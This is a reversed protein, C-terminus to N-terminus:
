AALLYLIAKSAAIRWSKNRCADELMGSSHGSGAPAHVLSPHKVTKSSLAM